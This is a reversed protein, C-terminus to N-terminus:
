QWVSDAQEFHSLQELFSHCASRGNWFPDLLHSETERSRGEVPQGDDAGVPYGRRDAFAWSLHQINIDQGYIKAESRAIDARHKTINKRCEKIVDKVFDPLDHSYDDYLVHLIDHKSCREAVINRLGRDSTPTSTYVFSIIRHDHPHKGPMWHRVAIHGFRQRAYQKLSDIQYYGGVGYMKAHTLLHKLPSISPKANKSAYRSTYLYTIM